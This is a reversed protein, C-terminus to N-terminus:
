TAYKLEEVIAAICGVVKTENWPTVSFVTSPSRSLQKGVDHNEVCLRVSTLCSEYLLCCSRVIRKCYVFGAKPDEASVDGESVDQSALGAGAM